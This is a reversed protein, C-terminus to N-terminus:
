LEYRAVLAEHRHLPAGAASALTPWCLDLDGRLDELLRDFQAPPMASPAAVALYVGPLSGKGDDAGEREPDDANKLLYGDGSYMWSNCGRTEIADRMAQLREEGPHVGDVMYSPGFGGESLVHLPAPYTHVFSRREEEDDPAEDLPSPTFVVWDGLRQREHERAAQLIRATAPGTRRALLRRAQASADEYVLWIYGWDEEVPADSHGDLQMDLAAAQRRVESWDQAATAAILLEWRMPVDPEVHELLERRVSLAAEFDKMAMAADAWLRRTPQAEPDLALVQEVLPGVAEFHEREFEQRARCWAVLAPQLEKVRDLQAEIEEHAGAALCLRFWSDQVSASEPRSLALARLRERAEDACGYRHLATSLMTVLADDNPRVAIARELCQIDREIDQAKGEPTSFWDTLAEPACPLPVSCATALMSDATALACSAGLDARLKPLHARARAVALAGLWPVGRDAALRAQHVALEITRRHNGVRHFQEIKTWLARGVAPTNLAPLQAVAALAAECWLELESEKCEEHPPLLAWGAEPQGSLSLARSRLFNRKRREIEDSEAVLGESEELTKLAAMGDGSALQHIAISRYLLDDPAEGAGRLREIQGRLFTVAESANGQDSMADARRYSLCRFCQRTPPLGTLAEDCVAICEPAWGPGDVNSYVAALDDTACVSQPCSRNGERHAFEFAEVADPLAIEGHGRSYRSTMLWHKFYVELWPLELARASALAEPVLAEVAEHEQEYRRHPIEDILRAIREHGQERLRTQLSNVWDYNDNM